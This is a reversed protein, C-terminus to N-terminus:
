LSAHGLLEQVSRLDAGNELLHTAFSHRLTHPTVRDEAGLQAGHRGVLARISRDSLPTGNKNLFLAEPETGGKRRARLLAPRAQHLYAGLAERAARGLFVTREKRGKGVVRLPGRCDLVRAVTLAAAESVRMGSSYLTELLAMDRLGLATEPNPAQLLEEVEPIRLVRPLRKELRPTFLGVAPNRSIRDNAVLFRFFSRIAALKRAISRRAYEKESLLALFARLERTEVTEWSRAEREQELFELLQLLDESYGKVTHESFGRQVQLYDRFADLEAEM